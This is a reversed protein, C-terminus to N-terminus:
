QRYGGPVLIKRQGATSETITVAWMVKKRIDSLKM